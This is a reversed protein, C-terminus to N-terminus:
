RPSGEPQPRSFWEFFRRVLGDVFEGPSHDTCTERPETGGLFAERLSVPCYRTALKGNSPDVDRLTVTAPVTFGGSPLATMAARMFDAWIPLAAQGGSLKLVDREDFGVWVLAVLRPSYGVFWADRGDNTTGTKGAIVGPAALGRAAQATGAQIVGGLLSTMLYAEAPSLVRTHADPELEVPVGDAEEIQVITTPGNTRVGSNAFPLYARALELPTVEFSGLAIAPVAALRSEIGLLRATEVVARLGTGEAVRITAANLSGELARRVTVRGEYRDDYNRPTWPEEGPQSITLPADEVVTAATM